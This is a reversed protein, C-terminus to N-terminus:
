RGDMLVGHIGKTLGQIILGYPSSKAFKLTETRGTLGTGEYCVTIEREILNIEIIAIDEVKEILKPM